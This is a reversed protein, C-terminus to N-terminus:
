WRAWARRVYVRPRYAYGYYPSAYAYSYAPYYGYNYAPAYGYSYGYAPAYGYSYAPYYGGYYGYNYRYSSAIAAGAALGLGLGIWGGGRWRVTQVAPTSADRLSLAAGLPVADASGALSPVGGAILAAALMMKTRLNMIEEVLVEGAFKRRCQQLHRPENHRREAKIM